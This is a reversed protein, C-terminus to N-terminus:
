CIRTLRSAWSPLWALVSWLGPLAPLRSHHVGSRPSSSRRSPSKSGSYGGCHGCSTVLIPHTAPSGKKATRVALTAREFDIQDWRLDLCGCPIFCDRASTIQGDALGSM